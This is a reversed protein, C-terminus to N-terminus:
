DNAAGNRRRQADLAAAGAHRLLRDADDGDTPHVAVGAHVTVGVGTGLVSFPERLARALKLAVRQADAPAEIKALLLAFADGGLSAVVDSARVAARLRVAVKRRVLQAAQEGHANAIAVLGEIRLVLLAMPAPQRVRLALLQSFHELLQERNPLGTNLDTSWAKRAEREQQKRLVAFRIRREITSAAEGPGLVDQVGAAVLRLTLAADDGDPAPLVLLVATDRLVPQWGTTALLRQAEDHSLVAVVADIAQAASIRELADDIGDCREPAGLSPPLAVEGCLLVSVISSATADM